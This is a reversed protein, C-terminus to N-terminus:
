LNIKQYHVIKLDKDLKYNFFLTEMTKKGEKFYVHKVPFTLSITGAFENQLTTHFIHSIFNYWHDLPAYIGYFDVYKEDHHEKLLKDLDFQDIEVKDVCSGHSLNSCFEKENKFSANYFYLGMSTMEVQEFNYISADIYIKKGKHNSNLKYIENILHEYVQIRSNIPDITQGNVFCGFLLTIFFIMRM